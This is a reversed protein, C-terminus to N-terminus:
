REVQYEPSTITLYYATKARMQPNSAPVSGIATLLTSRMGDSMTGHLLLADLEDVLAGPNAALGQLASWNPTTGIAGALTPLAPITGFSLANAFNYRDIATAANLLAFEPGVLGTGPVVYSPPYYNFVSPANFLDEGQTKAQQALYVGDSATGLARAAAAVYIVPERLKGYAPDTKVSGRAEPDALIATVVAKLDGRVGAGNDDFVAAVRAVYQPSPDGTVLKQILQRGIFPAVNHHAFVDHIGFALDASMPKGGTDVIDDLLVKDSFDHDESVASMDGLYNKPNHKRVAVGPLPPYTWGTFLHAFGEITDQDYTPIPAGSADLMRTGDDNLEWVGISFLQMVERAYNENPNVGAAPKDNDAMDLYDGMVSSLTVRTLLDEFNGFAGDLFIQQYAAMGYPAHIVVGSTVFIQSLAFAVRQRLQDPGSVANRFFANQLLFLSYNDRLCQPDPSTACYAQANQPVYAFAPYRSPPAAFQEALWGQVGVAQVHAVLTDTQGFTSQELLRTADARDLPADAAASVSFSFLAALLPLATFRSRPMM